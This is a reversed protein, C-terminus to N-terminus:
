TNYPLVGSNGQNRTAQHLTSSFQFDSTWMGPHVTQFLKNQARLYLCGPLVPTGRRPIELFKRWLQEGTHTSFIGKVFSIFPNEQLFRSPTLFFNVCCFLRKNSVKETIFRLYLRLEQLIEANQQPTLTTKHLM